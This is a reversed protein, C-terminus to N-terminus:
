ESAQEGMYKKTFFKGKETLEIKNQDDYYEILNLAHCYGVIAGLGANILRSVYGHGGYITGIIEGFDKYLVNKKFEIYEEDWLLTPDIKEAEEKKKTTEIITEIKAKEQEVLKTKDSELKIKEEEIERKAKLRIKQKECEYEEEKRVAPLFFWKPFKWIVLYTFVFPLALCIYFSPDSINFFKCILYENKLLGTSDLVLKQDLFFLSYVFNWHFISWSIIFTGYIPNAMRKKLIEKFSKLMEEGMCNKIDSLNTNEEGHAGENDREYHVFM